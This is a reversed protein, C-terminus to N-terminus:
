SKGLHLFACLLWPFASSHGPPLFQPTPISYPIGLNCEGTLERLNRSLHESIETLVFCAKQLSEHFVPKRSSAMRLHVLCFNICMWWDINVTDLEFCTYQLRFLQHTHIVRPQPLHSSWDSCASTPPIGAQRRRQM